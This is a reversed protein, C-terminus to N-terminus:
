PPKGQAMEAEIINLKSRLEELGRRLEDNSM